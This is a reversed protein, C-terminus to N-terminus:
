HLAAEPLTFSKGTTYDIPVSSLLNKSVLDQIQAPEAAYKKVYIDKALRIKLASFRHVETKMALIDEERWMKELLKLEPTKPGQAEKLATAATQYANKQLAIAMQQATFMAKNGLIKKSETILVRDIPWSARVSNMWSLWAELDSVDLQTQMLNEINELEDLILSRILNALRLSILSAEEYTMSSAFILWPELDSKVQLWRKNFADARAQLLSLQVAALLTNLVPEEDIEGRQFPTSELNNKQWTKMLTENKKWFQNINSLIAAAAPSVVTQASVPTVKNKLLDKSEKFLQTIGSPDKLQLGLNKLSSKEIMSFSAEHKKDQPPLEGAIVSLSFLPAFILILLSQM